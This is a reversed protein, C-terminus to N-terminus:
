GPKLLKLERKWRLVVGESVDYREQIELLRPHESNFWNLFDDPIPKKNHPTRGEMLKRFRDKHETTNARKQASTSMNARHELTYNRERGRKSIAKREAENPSSRTRRIKMKDLYEPESWKTTIIESHKKRREHTWSRRMNNIHKERKIPDSWHEEYNPLCGNAWRRANYYKTNVEEKKIMHLWRNEEKLLLERDNIRLYYLIRRKFTEPRHRYVDRMRKSSCIYGDDVHGMHSGIYFMKRKQDYWLYIFGFYDYISEDLM